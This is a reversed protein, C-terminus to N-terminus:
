AQVRLPVAVDGREGVAVGDLGLWGALEGLVGTLAPVIWAGGAAPSV